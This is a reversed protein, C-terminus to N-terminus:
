PISRIMYIGVSLAIVHSLSAAALPPLLGGKGFTICVADLIYYLFGVMISIGISSLGAARRRMILSFPIGLIIIILSTFPATYKQYLDIKLNRVVTTAGSRSLKWIYDDLDKITMQELHQRQSIFDRPTEPISMIEEEMYIPENIIQGNADFNYTISQSFKWLGDQYIGRNAVVKKILNQHEDHELIIIGQMTNTATYFKNIFFLRNRLGYMCLNNLIEQKKEKPKRVEEFQSKIRQAQALAQPMIRGNLWFVLLSVLLGLMLLTKSIHLVSLGSSRMAIIENNHNLRSFTYLTSLLCAFPAVKVFMFPLNLLYYKALVNFHIHMKILDELNTLLDIVV